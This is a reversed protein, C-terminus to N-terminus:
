AHADCPGELWGIVLGTPVASARRRAKAPQITRRRAM